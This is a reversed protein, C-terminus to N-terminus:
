CDREGDGDTDCPSNGSLFIYNILWVADSVNVSSDCNVNGSIYPVPEPGSRFVYNIIYVADSLNVNGSANADGCIHQPTSQEVVITIQATDYLTPISSDKVEMKFVFTSQYTPFGSLYASDTNVFTLGYPFQGSIKTWTYPPTGGLVDFKMFYDELLYATDVPDSISAMTFPVEAVTRLVWQDPDLDVNYVMSPIDILYTQNQGTNFVSVTSDGGNYSYKVDLPMSFLPFNSGDTNQVQRINLGLQLQDRTADTTVTWSYQYHPNGNQYMWQDFFWDLPEGYVAEAHAEFDDTVAWGYRRDPDATYSRMIQLIASDGVIHRLMHLMRSGKYYSTAGEFINDNILDEVYVSGANLCPQSQIWDHYYDLGYLKEYYLAETYTAFGENLWIHHYNQCTILNGWWHHAMEHVITWENALPPQLVTMTQNEMGWLDYFSNGYKENVFGYLGFLESLSQLQPITYNLYNNVGSTYGDYAYVVVQTTDGPAYEWLQEYLTQVTTVFHTVYTTIPYRTKWHTTITGNGNDDISQLLGNASTTMNDPHTVYLDLSDAKDYPFDKCPFWNRAGYPECETQCIPNPSFSRSFSIGGGINSFVTGVFIASGHYDVQITFTDGSDIPEPLYVTFLEASQVYTAPQGNAMINDKIYGSNFTLDVVSLNDERARGTIIVQSTISYSDFNLAIDINYHVIDYKLMNATPESISYLRTMKLGTEYESDKLNVASLRCKEELMKLLNPDKTRPIYTSDEFITVNNAQVIGGASILFLWCLTLCIVGNWQKTKM